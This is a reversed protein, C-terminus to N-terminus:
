LALNDAFHPSLMRYGDALLMLLIFSFPKQCPHFAVHDVVMNTNFGRLRWWQVPAVVSFKGFGTLKFKYSDNYIKFSLVSPFSVSPLLFTWRWRLDPNQLLQYTLGSNFWGKVWAQTRHM